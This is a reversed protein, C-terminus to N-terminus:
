IQTIAPMIGGGGKYEQACHGSWLDQDKDKTTFRQENHQSFSDGANGSYSAVTLFYGSAENRM